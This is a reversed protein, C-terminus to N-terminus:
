CQLYSQHRAVVIWLPPSPAYLDGGEADCSVNYILNIEQFSDGLLLCTGERQMVVLMTSLISTKCCSDVTVSFACLPGERGADCTVNYFPNIDQLLFRCHRLLRM